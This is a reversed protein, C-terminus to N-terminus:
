MTPLYLQYFDMTQTAGSSLTTNTLNMDNGAVGIDGQVRAETTSIAGTDGVAVHRYFSAVGGAANVGSWVESTSKALAGGVAMPEFTLGTGSSSVSLTVLLVASGLADDATSPVTGSYLKLFGLSMVSRLSGTDLLKNRLGTSAKITM